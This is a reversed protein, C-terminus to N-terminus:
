PTPTNTITNPVNPDYGFAIPFRACFMNNALTRYAMFRYFEDTDTVKNKEIAIDDGFADTCEIWEIIKHGNEYHVDYVMGTHTINRWAANNFGNVNTALTNDGSFFVDGVDLDAFSIECGMEYLERAMDNANNLNNFTQGYLTGSGDYYTNLSFSAEDSGAKTRKFGYYGITNGNGDKKALGYLLQRYLFKFYYGFGSVATKTINPSYTNNNKGLFDRISRGMMINQVFTACCLKFKGKSADYCSGNSYTNRNHYYEYFFVDRNNYWDDMLAKVEAKQGDTLKPVGVVTQTGSSGGSINVPPYLFMGSGTNVFFVEEKKEFLGAAEDETRLMPVYHKILEGNQNYVKFSKVKVYSKTGLVYLSMNNTWSKFTPALLNTGNVSFETKSLRITGKMFVSEDLEGTEQSTTNGWRIYFKLRNGYTGVRVSSASGNYGMFLVKDSNVDLASQPIEYEFVLTDNEQIIYGTNINQTGTNQIYELEIYEPIEEVSTGGGGGVIEINGKGLISQGNITKINTGSVLNEQKEALAAENLAIQEDMANLQSAKLVDGSKFNQKTYGM